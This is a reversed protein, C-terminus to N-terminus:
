IRNARFLLFVFFCGGIINTIVGVPILVPAFVIRSLTDCFLLFVAGTFAATPILIFNNTGVIKRMIHPIMLGVFGIIGCIVVTVATIFSATLFLFKINKEVNMGFTRSKESCLSLANIVNGSLSLIIIGTLVIAIVLPLLREDFYLFNGTLWIFAYQANNLPSLTFM